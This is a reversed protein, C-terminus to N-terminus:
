HINLLYSVGHMHLGHDSFLIVSTKGNNIQGSSIMDEFFETLQWDLTKIVEGSAEHGEMFLLTLFKKDKSYANLFKKAYELTYQPVPKSYLCREFM